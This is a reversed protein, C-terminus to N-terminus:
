LLRQYNGPSRLAMYYHPLREKPCINKFIFYYGGEIHHSDLYNDKKWNRIGGTPEAIHILSSEPDFIIRGGKKVLRITFDSEERHAGKIYQSDYGNLELMKSKRASFNCSRGIPSLLDSKDVKANFNYPFYLWGNKRYLTDIDFDKNVEKDLNLVQGAVAQVDKDFYNKAHNKIFQDTELIIDDDIFILIAGNSEKIGRNRALSASPEEQFFYRVKSSNIESLFKPIPSNPTQDVVLIEFEPYDQKLLHTISDMLVKVRNFTPIVISVIPLKKLNLNFDEQKNM